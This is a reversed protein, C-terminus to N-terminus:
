VLEKIVTNIWNIRNGNARIYNLSGYRYNSDILPEISVVDTLYLKWFVGQQIGGFTSLCRDFSAHVASCARRYIDDTRHTPYKDRRHYARLEETTVGWMELNKQFDVYDQKTKPIYQNNLVFSWRAYDIVLIDPIDKNFTIKFDFGPVPTGKVRPPCISNHCKVWCWIPYTSEKDSSYYVSLKSSIWDYARQIKKSAKADDCVIYKNHILNEVFDQSQFTVLKM